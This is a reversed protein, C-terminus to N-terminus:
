DIYYVEMDYVVGEQRFADYGAESGDLWIDIMDGKVAGGIDQAQRLGFDYKWNKVYLWTGLPIVNMDVAITTHDPHNGLYTYPDDPIYYYTAKVVKRMSYTYTKGDGGVFSGGVGIEYIEKQPEEAVVREIEERGIEEGNKLHVSYTTDARGEKGYQIYNVNGRYILDTEHKESEYPIAEAVVDTIYEYKDFPITVDDGIMTDLSVTPEEGDLIEIGANEIIEGLTMKTSYLEIDDRDFFDLKVKFQVNVEEPLIAPERTLAEKRAEDEAEEDTIMDYDSPRKTKDSAFSIATVMTALLIAVTVAAAAFTVFTKKLTFGEFFGGNDKENKSKEEEGDKLEDPIDFSETDRKASYPNYSATIMEAVSSIDEDDEEDYEENEGDSGEDETVDSTDDVASEVTESLESLDDTEEEIIEAEVLEAEELSQETEKPTDYTNKDYNEM